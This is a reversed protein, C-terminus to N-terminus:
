KAQVTVNNHTAAKKAKAVDIVTQGGIHVGGLGAIIAIYEMPLGLHGAVLVLLQTWMMSKVKKSGLWDKM